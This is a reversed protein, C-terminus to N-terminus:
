SPDSAGRMPEYVEGTLWLRHLIVALKRAVAIRARAKDRPNGRNAIRRGFRKLTSDPSSQRLIHAAAAVLLSRMTGDGQKSIRLNPDWNGSQYSRPVLGFYAGVNRSDDFRTPDEITAVFALAVLPGVGRIQRLAGTEPFEEKCLRGVESDYHRIRATLEDILELTPLLAPRLIEPMERRATAVLRQRSCDLKTGQVKCEARVLCLLRTRTNVLHKRARILARVALSSAKRVHVPALLKPDARGIRALTRADNRDTKKASKSILHVNRPNAVIVQHGLNELERAIWPAQTSAELVLRSRAGGEFMQRLSELSTPFSGERLITGQADLTCYASTQDSLDIGTTLDPTSETHHNM